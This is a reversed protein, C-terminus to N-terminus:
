SSSWTGTGAITVKSLISQTLDGIITVGVSSFAINVGSIGVEGSFSTAGILDGTNKYQLTVLNSRFPSMPPTYKGVYSYLTGTAFPTIPKTSWTGVGGIEQPPSIANVLTGTIHFGRTPFCITIQNDVQGVFPKSGSLASINTYVVTSSSTTFASPTIPGLIHM